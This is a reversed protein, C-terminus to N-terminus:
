RVVTKGNQIVIAGGENSGVHCATQLDAVLSGDPMTWHPHRDGAGIKSLFVGLANSYEIVHEGEHRASAQLYPWYNEATFDDPMPLVIMPVGSKRGDSWVNIVTGATQYGRTVLAPTGDMNTAQKKIMLVIYDKTNTFNTWSPVHFTASTITQQVGAVVTSGIRARTAADTVPMETLVVGGDARDIQHEVQPGWNLPICINHATTAAHTAPCVTDGPGQQQQGGSDGGCSLGIIAIIVIAALVVVWWYSKWLQKITEM